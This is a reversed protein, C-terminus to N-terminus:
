KLYVSDLYAKREKLWSILYTTADMFSDYQRTQMLTAGSAGKGYRTHNDDFVDKFAVREYEINSVMKDFIGSKDFISYYKKFMTQFFDTQSIMYLWPNATTMGGAYESNNLFNDKTSSIGSSPIDKDSSSSGGQGGWGGWGGSSGQKNGEGLDFDWPAAMTLRKVTSKKSFDVYMYFSGWGVDYNKMFEQLVYMRLFSDVDIYANLTEYQTTYPSDQLQGNEDVIQKSEGKLLGKFAKLVNNMYDRIFPVQDDGYTDTKVAYGKDSITVGNISDGGQGGWGGFGGTSTGTGTTFCPDGEHTGIHTTSDVHGQQTILGDIEILYGIDTGTYNESAENVPIRGKKAQQQEALLYVGRNEGNMYLNVHKYDSSYYGSYNFLSNGMAFATENRFRSQDFFDALLVWSKEKLGDNLGLLNTKGGLKLRFARKAVSEQNTSNGRVKIQGALNSFEYKSEAANDITLNMNKYEREGNHSHWDPDEGDETVVRVNPLGINEIINIKAKKETILVNNDDYFRATAEQSGKEQRENNEYQVTVGYPLVGEIMVKHSNGDYMYSMDDFVFENMKYCDGDADFGCNPCHYHAVGKELLTPEKTITETVQHNSCDNPNINTSSAVFSSSSSESSSNISSRSESESVSSSTSATSSNSSSESISAQVACGSVLGTLTLLMVLKKISQKMNFDERM